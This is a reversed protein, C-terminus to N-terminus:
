SLYSGSTGSALIWSQGGYTDNIWADVGGSYCQANCSCHPQMNVTFGTGAVDISSSSYQTVVDGPQLGGIVVSGGAMSGGSVTFKVTGDKQVTATVCHGVTAIATRGGIEIQAGAGCATASMPPEVAARMGSGDGPLSGIAGGQGFATLGLLCVLVACLVIRVSKM